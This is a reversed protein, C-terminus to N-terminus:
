AKQGNYGAEAKKRTEWKSGSIKQCKWHREEVEVWKWEM